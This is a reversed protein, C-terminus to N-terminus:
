RTGDMVSLRKAVVGGGDEQGCVPMKTDRVPLATYSNGLELALSELSGYSGAKRRASQSCCRNTSSGVSGGGDRKPLTDFGNGGKQILSAELV